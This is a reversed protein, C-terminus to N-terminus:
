LPYAIIVIGPGGCGGPQYENGSPPGSPGYGYGGGGGGGGTNVTGPRGVNVPAASTSVYAGCNGGGYPGGTPNASPSPVTGSSGRGGGAYNVSSGSISSAVGVGGYGATYPVTTWPSYPIGPAAPAGGYGGAGGGGGGPQGVIGAGTPAYYPPANDNSAGYGPYGTPNAVWGPVDDSPQPPNANGGYANEKGGGGSGSYGLGPGTIPTPIGPIDAGIYPAGGGAGLDAVSPRQTGGGRGGGGIIKKGEPHSPAPGFDIFSVNGPASQASLNRGNDVQGSGAAGRGGAGVMVPCAGDSAPGMTTTAPIGAPSEYFGGAGGGGAAATAGGGGGGGVILYQLNPAPSPDTWTFIGGTKFTHIGKGGSESYVGGTARASAPYLASGTTVAGGPSYTGIGAANVGAVYYTYPTAPSSSADKFSATTSGTEDVLVDSGRKISYGTIASGGPTGPAVWTLSANGTGAVAAAAMSTPAGPTTLPTIASSASSASGTGVENITSIRFTYATGNTLGTVTYSTSTSGTDATVDSWSGSNKEVKYGSITGNNAAGATWTLAVQTNGATGAVDSPAGPASAPTGFAGSTWNSVATAPFRRQLDAM